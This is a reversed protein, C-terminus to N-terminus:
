LGAAAETEGREKGGQEQTKAEGGEKGKGKKRKKERAGIDQPGKTCRSIACAANLMCCTNNPHKFQAEVGM